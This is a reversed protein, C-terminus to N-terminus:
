KGEIREQEWLAELVDGPTMPMEMLRIGVAAEIASGIAALPAIIPLEGVGKAGYPHNGGPFELVVTDIMPVDLSTPMRYDLFSSNLMQGKSDFFYGEHLAWGIGQVAGGQIQGEVYSPHIAQGVDELATFRTVQVKGTEPDVEVDVINVAFAEGGGTAMLTAQGAIPGGTSNLRAALEKFTMRREPNETSSFVGDTFDVVDENAEWIKAARRRMQLVVDQAAQYASHGVKFATSSGVTAGTFGISDTDVVTPHVDEAPIGLVEAAQMAAAPRTGGIDVSGETLSVQGDAHVSLFCSSQGGGTHWSAFAVGRGQNPGTLPALYHPHQIAAELVAISSSDEHRVGDLGRDGEKVANRIRFELPDLELRKALEDMVQEIGYSAQPAGPARYPAVKPKNVVVDYGDILAHEFNYLAITNMGAGVPSGPYAGAEYALMMTAATLTGDRRAGIKIQMYSGAAAGTAEFDEKRTMVLKVPRGTRKSLLAAVPEIYAPVKGGFGGGIELPVVKIQSTPHKLVQAVQDRIRFTGQSSCWITIFDDSNWMATANHLEIYGQHVTATKFEREVIVDAERFGQEVDGRKIQFHNAINSSVGTDTKQGQGLTRTTLLPHLLPAGDAMAEQATMVPPLVEYDVKILKVAEDAAQATTAAVAAVAHGTYLVKDRALVNSGPITPPVISEGLAEERSAPAQLDQGTVIGRVGPFALADSIDISRIIAHAYPSRLIAGFLTGPLKFDHGYIAQGTVKEPGDHRIPRTGVVKLSRRQTIAM